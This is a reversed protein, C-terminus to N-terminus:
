ASWGVTMTGPPCEYRGTQGKVGCQTPQSDVSFTGACGNAVWMGPGSDLPGWDTNDYNLCNAATGSSSKTLFVTSKGDGGRTAGAGAPTIVIPNGSGSTWVTYTLGSPVVQAPGTAQLYGPPPAGTGSGGPSSPDTPQGSGSAGGSSGSPAGSGSSGGSAAGLSTSQEGSYMYWVLLIVIVLVLAAAGLLIWKRSVGM